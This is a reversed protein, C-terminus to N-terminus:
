ITEVKTNGIIGLRQETSRPSGAREKLLLAKSTFFCFLSFLLVLFLTAPHSSQAFTCLFLAHPIFASDDAHLEVVGCFTTLTSPRSERLRQARM